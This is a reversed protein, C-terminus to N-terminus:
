TSRGLDGLRQADLDADRTHRAHRDDDVGPVGPIAGQRVALRLRHQAALRGHGLADFRHGDRRRLLLVVPFLRHRRGPDVAPAHRRREFGGALRCHDGGRGDPDSVHHQGVADDSSSQGMRSAGIVGHNGRDRESAQHRSSREDHLYSRDFMAAEPLRRVM